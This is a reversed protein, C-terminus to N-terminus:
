TPSEGEEYKIDIQIGLLKSEPSEDTLELTINNTVTKDFLKKNKMEKKIKEIVDQNVTAIYQLGKKKTEKHAVKLCTAQQRPDMNGFLRSDHFIFGMNHNHKLKLLSLDFCFIKVEGVGDSSDDSISASIDFAIQNESNPNVSVNLGGVKDDYFEQSMNRFTINNLERLDKVKDLYDIAKKVLSLLEKRSDIIDKKIDSILQGSAILKELKIKLDTIKNNLSVYEDLAGHTGIYRNKTEQIEQKEKLKTELASLDREISSKEQLLRQSRTKLLSNHFYDLEYLRKKLTEPFYIYAEEYLSLIDIYNIDPTIALTKDINKIKNKRLTIQNLIDKLNRSIEKLEDETTRYDDALKFNLLKQEKEEIDKQLNLKENEIEKPKKAKNQIELYKEANKLSDKSKDLKTKLLRKDEIINTDLGLLFSSRLLKQYPSFDELFENYANYSKKGRRIFRPILSRFTLFPIKDEKKFLKEELFANYDQISKHEGNLYIKKQEEEDERILRTANYKEGDIEFYLSFDWGDLPKFAKIYDAGLCFHILEIILSKGVGNYTSKKNKSKKTGAILTIGEPNFHVAHFSEKNAALKILKLV